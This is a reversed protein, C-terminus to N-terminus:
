LDNEILEFLDKENKKMIVLEDSAFMLVRDEYEERIADSESYVCIGRIAELQILHDVEHLFLLDARFPSVTDQLEMSLRAYTKLPNDPIDKFLVAFDIDSEPDTVDVERGELLALGKGAQSGFLYCLSIGFKECIKRIREM